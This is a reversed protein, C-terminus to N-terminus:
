AATATVIEIGDLHTYDKVNNTLLPAAMVVATAAIWADAAQMRRGKRSSECRIAAWASCLRDNAHSISFDAIYQELALRKQPGWSARIAGEPMEAVTMFSLVPEFSRIVDIYRPAFEPRWKFIFSAVDTDAVLRSMASWLIEDGSTSVASM